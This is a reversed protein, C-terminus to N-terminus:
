DAHARVHMYLQQERGSRACPATVCRRAIEYSAIAEMVSGRAEAIAGLGVNASFSGHDAQAGARRGRGGERARRRAEFARMFYGRATDLQDAAQQIRGLAVLARVSKPNSELAGEYARKAQAGERVCTCGCWVGRARACTRAIGSTRTRSRSPSTRTRRARALEGASVGRLSGRARRVEDAYDEVLARRFEEVADAPRGLQRLCMGVGYHARPLASNAGLAAHWAGLADAPRGMQQLALALNAHIQARPNGCRSPEPRAGGWWGWARPRVCRQPPALRRRRAAALAGAREPAPARPAAPAWRYTAVAAELDGRRHHISGLSGLSLADRPQAALARRGGRTLAPQACPPTPLRQRM